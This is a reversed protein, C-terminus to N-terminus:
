WSMRLGAGTTLRACETRRRTIRRPRARGIQTAYQRYAPLRAKSSNRVWGSFTSYCVSEVARSLCGIATKRNALGAHSMRPERSSLQRYGNAHPVYRDITQIESKERGHRDRDDLYTPICRSRGWLYHTGVITNARRWVGAARALRRRLQTSPKPQRFIQPADRTAVLTATYEVADFLMRLTKTLWGSATSRTAAARGFKM